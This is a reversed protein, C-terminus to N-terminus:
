EKKKSRTVPKTYKGTTAYDYEAKRKKEMKQDIKGNDDCIYLLLAEIITFRSNRNRIMRNFRNAGVEVCFSTLAAIENESFDDAKYSLKNMVYTYASKLISEPTKPNLDKLM